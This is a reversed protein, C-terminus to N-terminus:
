RGRIADKPYTSRVCFSRLTLLLCLLLFIWLGYGPDTFVLPGLQPSSPPTISNVYGFFGISDVALQLMAFHFVLNGGLALVAVAICRETTLLLETTRRPIRRAVVAVVFCLVVFVIAFALQTRLEAFVDFDGLQSPVQSSLFRYGPVGGPEMWPLALCGLALIPLVIGSVLAWSNGNLWARHSGRRSVGNVKAYFRRLTGSVRGYVPCGVLQELVRAYKRRTVCVLMFIVFFCFWIGAFYDWLTSTIEHSLGPNYLSELSISLYLTGFVLAYVVLAEPQLTFRERYIFYRPEPARSETLTGSRFDSRIIVSHKALPDETRLALWSVTIANVRQRMSLTIAAALVAFMGLPWWDALSLGDVEIPQQLYPIRLQVLYAQEREAGYEEQLVNLEGIFADTKAADKLLPNKTRGLYM